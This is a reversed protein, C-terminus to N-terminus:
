SQESFFPLFGGEALPSESSPPFGMMKPPEMNTEPLTVHLKGSFWSLEFKKKDEFQRFSTATFDSLSFEKAFPM